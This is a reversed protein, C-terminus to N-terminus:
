GHDYTDFTADICLIYFTAGNIRGIVRGLKNLRFIWYSDLCAASRGTAVFERNVSFHVSELPLAEFGTQKHWSFITLLDSSSLKIINQLLALKLRKDFHKGEFNYKNDSTVFSFNFVLRSPKFDKSQDISIKAPERPTSRLKRGLNNYLKQRLIINYSKRIM